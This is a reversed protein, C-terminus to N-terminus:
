CSKIKTKPFSSRGSAKSAKSHRNQADSCRFYIHSLLKSQHSLIVWADSSNQATWCDVNLKNQKITKNSSFCVSNIRGFCCYWLRCEVLIKNRLQSLDRLSCDSKLYGKFEEVQVRSVSYNILSKTQCLSRMWKVAVDINTLHGTRRSFENALKAM